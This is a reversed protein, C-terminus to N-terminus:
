PWGVEDFIRAAAPQHEGYLSVNITESEFAGLEELAPSTAAADTVPLENNLQAIVQQQADELMFAIFQLALDHHPANAAVGVGSVNVHVGGRRQDPWVLAVTDVVARSAEDEDTLFRAYYYHNVLAVDCDGAAVANIQDIDGGIPPRAFNERVGRAWDRAYDEGHRAIMGALLSLNYDNASSRVCVRGRLAPDALSAYSSVDEPEVAGRRYVIVRARRSFAIWNNDPDRYESPVADLIAQDEIPQFLGAESARWLRGADVTILVDAPSRAGEARMREILLDGSAEVLNVEVGTEEEFAAFIVRDSAYHRASYVNLTPGSDGCASLAVSVASALAVLRLHM